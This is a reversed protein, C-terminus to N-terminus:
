QFVSTHFNRTTEMSEVRLFDFEIEFTVDNTNLSFCFSKYQECEATNARLKDLSPIQCVHMSGLNGAIMNSLISCRKEYQEIALEWKRLKPVKSVIIEQITKDTTRERKLNKKLMNLETEVLNFTSELKQDFHTEFEEIKHGDKQEWVM